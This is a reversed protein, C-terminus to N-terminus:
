WKVAEKRFQEDIKQLEEKTMDTVYPEGIKSLLVFRVTGGYAKKDRTMVEYIDNFSFMTGSEVPYGATKLWKAFAPIDFSLGNKAASAYLAFIMGCAVAEGHAVNGYGSLAEVAHGYTHGFNLYARVGTELEDEKVISGKIEIGRKLCYELFSGSMDSANNVSSRIDEYLSPDAILAHKIVEAFGSRTEKESLSQLFLTDFIVAEPQHFAGIMNKGLPHNVATKGGVASDHALITTPVQIFPIGRMYAAACFGALDGCAGGGFAVVLSRRDLSCELMRTLCQEFVGFSKASEGAPVNHWDAPIDSPLAAELRVGHLARVSEDAIIFLRTPKKDMEDLFSTITEVAREGIVVPYTKAATEIMVRNM